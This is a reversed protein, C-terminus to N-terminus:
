LFPPFHAIVASKLRYLYSTLWFHCEPVFFVRFWEMWPWNMKPIWNWVNGEFHLLLFKWDSVHCVASSFENRVRFCNYRDTCHLSLFPRVLKKWNHRFWMQAGTWQCTHMQLRELNKKTKPLWFCMEWKLCAWPCWYAPADLRKMLIMWFVKKATLSTSDWFVSYVFIPFSVTSKWFYDFVKAKVESFFLSSSAFHFFLLTAM